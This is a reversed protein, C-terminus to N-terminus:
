IVEKLNDSSKLIDLITQLVGSDIMDLLSLGMECTDIVDIDERGNLRNRIERVIHLGVGDDSLIDNGLGLLLVKNKEIDRHNM